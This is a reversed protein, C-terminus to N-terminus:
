GDVRVLDFAWSGPALDVRVTVKAHIPVGAEITLANAGRVDLTFARLDGERLWRPESPRGDLVTRMDGGRSALNGVCVLAELAGDPLAVHGRWLPGDTSM